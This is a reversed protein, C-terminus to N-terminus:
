RLALDVRAPPANAAPKAGIRPALLFLRDGAIGKGALADKVAQARANALLRIADDDITAETLLMAEM